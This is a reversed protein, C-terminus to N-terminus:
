DIKNLLFHIDNKLRTLRKLGLQAYREPQKRRQATGLFFKANLANAGSTGSTAGNKGANEGGNGTQAARAAADEAKM